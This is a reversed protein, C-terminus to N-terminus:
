GTELSHSQWRKNLSADMDFIIHMRSQWSVGEINIAIGLVRMEVGGEEKRQEM